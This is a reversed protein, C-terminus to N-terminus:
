GWPSRGAECFANELPDTVEGEWGHLPGLYWLVIRWEDDAFSLEFSSLLREVPGGPESAAATWAV